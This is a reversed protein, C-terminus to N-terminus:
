VRYKVLFKNNTTLNAIHSSNKKKKKCDGCKQSNESFRQYHSSVSMKMRFNWKRLTSKSRKSSWQGCSHEQPPYYTNTKSKDILLRDSTADILKMTKHKRSNSILSFMSIFTLWHDDALNSAICPRDKLEVTKSGNTEMASDYVFCLRLISFNLLNLLDWIKWQSFSESKARHHTRIRCESEKAVTPKPWDCVCRHLM